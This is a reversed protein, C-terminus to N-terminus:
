QNTYVEPAQFSDYYPSAITKSITFQTNITMVFHYPIAAGDIQSLDVFGVPTPGIWFCNLEMQSEAYQSRLAMLVEEKRLLAETSRSIIHIDLTAQTNVTQISNGFTDYQVNNGFPKTKLVRLAIWLGSDITQFIKQDYLLVRNPNLGMQNAIIDCILQYVSGVLVPASSTVLPTPSTSDTVVVTDYAQAAPPLSAPATYLGTSPNITGGAGNIRVAYTYPGIGGQGLFGM